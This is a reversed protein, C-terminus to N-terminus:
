RHRRHATAPVHHTRQQLAAGPHGSPDSHEHEPHAVEVRGQVREDVRVEVPLEPHRELLRQLAAPGFRRRPTRRAQAAPVLVRAVVRRRRGARREAALVRVVAVHGLHVVHVRHGYRQELVVAAAAASVAVTSIM